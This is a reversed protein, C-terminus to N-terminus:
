QTKKQLRFFLDNYIALKTKIEALVTKRRSNSMVECWLGRREEFQARAAQWKDIERLEDELRALEAQLHLLFFKHLWGYKRYISFNPHCNNCAAMRAYGQPYSDVVFSKTSTTGRPHFTVRDFTKLYWM